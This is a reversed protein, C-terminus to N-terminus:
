QLLPEHLIRSLSRGLLSSAVQRQQRYDTNGLAPLSSSRLFFHHNSTMSYNQCAHM